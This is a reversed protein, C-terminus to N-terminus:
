KIGETRILRHFLEDIANKNRARGENSKRTLKENVLIVDFNPNESTIEKLRKRDGEGILINSKILEEINEVIAEEDFTRRESLYDYNGESVCELILESLRSKIETIIKVQQQTEEIKGDKNFFFHKINEVILRDILASLADINTLRL